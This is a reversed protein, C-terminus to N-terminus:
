IRERPAEFERERPNKRRRGALRQKPEINTNQVSSGVAEARAIAAAFRRDMAKLRARSWAGFYNNADDGPRAAADRLKSPRSFAPRPMSSARSRFPVPRLRVGFRKALDDAGPRPAKLEFATDAPLLALFVKIESLARQAQDAKERAVYAYADAVAALATLHAADTELKLLRDILVSSLRALKV